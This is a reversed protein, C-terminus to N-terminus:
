RIRVKDDDTARNSYFQHGIRRITDAATQPSNEFMERIDDATIGDTATVFYIEYNRQPNAQARLQLMSLSFPRTKREAGRLVDMMQQQQAVTVDEIYELGYCDWMLVFQHEAM